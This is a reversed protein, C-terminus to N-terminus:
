PKAPAPAAAPAPEAARHDRALRRLDGFVTVYLMMGFLLVVFVSQAAAIFNGPLPRGRLKGLTAFAMHGGDLVPIPLLNFIALNVNILVTFWLILRLPYDSLALVWFIRIIGVPGSLKSMNVDSHPHVLSWLTRFTSHVFGAVLTVPDVRVLRFATRYGAGLLAASETAPRDAPLTVTLERGARELTLPLARGPARQATEVLTALSLVPQGDIAKLRDDVRLGLRAALSDAPIEALIPTYAPAIGVRRDKDEGALRPYTTLDIRQGDREITFVTRRRGDETTGTSTVLTQLLESWDAIPQGDIARITDGPRLGAEAAPSPVTSKDPLTLTAAVYGIRTTAQDETTPQGIFWLLTALALAFLLNCAAGAAFVLMRTTYSVPALSEAEGADAPGGELGGLDALQPLAVYGGLPLWSLRYEVGDRGRWAFIKPGFGISFREVKVGRRRAALFHGLEHVFISGGFFLVALFVAWLNHLVLNALDPFTM